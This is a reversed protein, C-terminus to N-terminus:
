RCRPSLKEATMKGVQQATIGHENAIRTYKERRKANIRDVMSRVDGSAEATARLYGTALECVLGQRKAQDVDAAQASPAGLQLAITVALILAASRTTSATSLSM